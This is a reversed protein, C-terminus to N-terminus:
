QRVEPVPCPPRHHSREGRERNRRRRLRRSLRWDRVVAKFIRGVRLRTDADKTSGECRRVIRRRLWLQKMRTGDTFAFQHDDTTRAGRKRLDALLDDRILEEAESKLQGTRFWTARGITNGPAFQAAKKECGCSTTHGTRLRDSRVDEFRGCACRCRWVATKGRSRARGVVTLKGFRQGMLDITHPRLPGLGLRVCGCSRASGTRLAERSVEKCIGCSCAVKWYGPIESRVLVTLQGFLFGTLDRRLGSQRPEAIAEPDDEYRMGAAPEPGASGGLRKGLKQIVRDVVHDILADFEATGETRAQEM